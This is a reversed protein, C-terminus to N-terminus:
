TTMSVQGKERTKNFYELIVSRRCKGNYHALAFRCVGADFKAHM